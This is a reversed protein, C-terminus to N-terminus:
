HHDDAHDENHDAPSHNVRVGVVEDEANHQPQRLDIEGEPLEYMSTAKAVNTRALVVAGIVAVGVSLWVPVLAFTSRPWNRGMSGVWAVFASLAAPLIVLVTYGIAGATGAAAATYSGVAVAFAIALATILVWRGPRRGAGERQGSSIDKEM